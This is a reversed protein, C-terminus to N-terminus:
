GNSCADEKLLTDHMSSSVTILVVNLTEYHKGLLRLHRAILQAQYSIQVEFLYVEVIM